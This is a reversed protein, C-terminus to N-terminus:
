GGWRRLYNIVAQIVADRRAGKLDLNERSTIERAATRVVTRLEASSRPGARTLQDQIFPVFHVLYADLKEREVALEALRTSVAAVKGPDEKDLAQQLNRELPPSRHPGLVEALSAARRGGM